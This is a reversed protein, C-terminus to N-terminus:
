RPSRDGLERRMVLVRQYTELADRFQGSRFQPTKQRRGKAIGACRYCHVCRKPCVKTM